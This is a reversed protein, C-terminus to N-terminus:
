RLSVALRYFLRDEETFATGQSAVARDFGCAHCRIVDIQGECVIAERHPAAVIKRQAQDLAYLM